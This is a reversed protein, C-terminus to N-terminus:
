PQTIFLDMLWGAACPAQPILAWGAPEGATLLGRMNQLRLNRYQSYPVSGASDPIGMVPEEPSEDMDKVKGSPM